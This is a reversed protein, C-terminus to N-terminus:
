VEKPSMLSVPGKTGELLRAAIKRHSLALTAIRVETNTLKDILKVKDVLNLNDSEMVNTKLGELQTIISDTTVATVEPM